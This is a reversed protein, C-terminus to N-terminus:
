KSYYRKSRISVDNRIEEQREKTARDFYSERVFACSSTDKPVFQKKIPPEVAHCLEPDKDKFLCQGCTLKMDPDNWNM